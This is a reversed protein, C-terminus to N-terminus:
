YEMIIQVSECCSCLNIYTYTHKRVADSTSFKHSKHICILGTRFWVLACMMWLIWEFSVTTGHQLTINCGISFGVLTPLLLLYAFTHTYTTFLIQTTWSDVTNGSHAYREKRGDAVRFFFSSFDKKQALWESTNQTHWCSLSFFVLIETHRYRHRERPKPKEQKSAQTLLLRSAQRQPAHVVTQQCLRVTTVVCKSLAAQSLNM